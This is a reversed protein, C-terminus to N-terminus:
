NTIKRTTATKAPLWIQLLHFINKNIKHKKIRKTVIFFAELKNLITNPSGFILTRQLLIIEKRQYFGFDICITNKSSNIARSKNQEPM